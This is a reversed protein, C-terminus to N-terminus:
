LGWRSMLYSEVSAIAGASIAGDALLVEGVDVDGQGGGDAYDGLAVRTLTQAGPTGALTKATGDMRAISSAGNMQVTFLHWNTDENEVDRETGAYTRFKGGTNYVIACETNAKGMLAGRLTGVARYACVIFATFPQAQTLTGVLSQTSASAFRAVARSNKVGTTWLPRLGATAQISHTGTGSKDTAYGIPDTTVAVATTGNSLQFLSSADSFDWWGKLSSGLITLPTGVAPRRGSTANRYLRYRQGRSRM